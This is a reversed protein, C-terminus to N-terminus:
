KFKTINNIIKKKRKELAGLQVLRHLRQDQRCETVHGQGDADLELLVGLHHEVRQVLGRVHLGVRVVEVEDVVEVLQALAAEVGVGADELAELAVVVGGTDTLKV